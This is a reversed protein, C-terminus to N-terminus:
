DGTEKLNVNLGSSPHYNWSVSFGDWSDRQTGDLARTTGMQDYISDPMNIAELVCDIQTMSLGSSDKEGENDLSLSHGDDGLKASAKEATLKCKAVADPLPRPKNAEAEAAAKANADNVAGTVATTGVIGLLIGLVLGAAGFM